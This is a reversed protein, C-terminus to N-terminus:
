NRDAGTNDLRTIDSDSLDNLNIRVSWSNTMEKQGTVVSSPMRLGWGLIIKNVDSAEFECM